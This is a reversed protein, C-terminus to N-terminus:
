KKDEPKAVVKKDTAKSEKSKSELKAKRKKDGLELSTIMLNSPKLPFQVKTGDKKIVDLDVLFITEHKLDVRDVKSEKKRFQGRMVKVKDGKRLQVNRFGYKKRLEPSLHAHVFKQRQHLDVNFRAKRQKRAQQTNINRM